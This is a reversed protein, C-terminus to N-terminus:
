EVYYEIRIRPLKSSKLVSTKYFGTYVKLGKTTEKRRFDVYGLSDVGTFILNNDEDYLYVSDRFNSTLISIRASYENGIQITDNEKQVDSKVWFYINSQILCDFELGNLVKQEYSKIILKKYNKPLSNFEKPLSSWLDNNFSLKNIFKKNILESQDIRELLMTISEKLKKADRIQDDWYGGKKHEESFILSYLIEDKGIINTLEIDSIDNSSNQSCSM